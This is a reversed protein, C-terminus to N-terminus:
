EPGKVRGRKKRDRPALSLFSSSLGQSLSQGEIEKM